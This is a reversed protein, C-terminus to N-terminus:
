AKGQGQGQYWDFEAKLIVKPEPPEQKELIVLDSVYWNPDTPLAGTRQDLAGIFELAKFQAVDVAGTEFIVHERPEEDVGYLSSLKVNVTYKLAM